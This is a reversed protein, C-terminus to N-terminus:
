RQPAAVRSPTRGEHHRSALQRRAAELSCGITRAYQDAADDGLRLALAIRQTVGLALVRQVTDRRLDDAVSRM